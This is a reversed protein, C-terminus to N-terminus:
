FVFISNEKISVKLKKGIELDKLQDTILVLEDGNVAVRVLIYYDYRLIDTIVVELGNDDFVLESAKFAVVEGEVNQNFLQNYSESSLVNLSNQYFFQLVFLHKPNNLLENVTGVQVIEGENMVVIKSAINIAENYDHTVYIMTTQIAKHIRIIENQMKWRLNTDLSSLPEDMLFVKPNTILARAIAVRQKEGGSLSNVSQKRKDTLNVLGLMNEVQEERVQPKIGKIKLPFEINKYVNMNPYLAYNQFIMAIERDKPLKSTIEEGQFFIQGSTQNTLGSIIELLTTKGCGSPGLLVCIEGANIELNINKLVEKEGYKMNLNVLKIDIM